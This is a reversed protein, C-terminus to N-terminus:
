PIESCNVPASPSCRFRMAWCTTPGVLEACRCYYLDPLIITVTIINNNMVLADKLMNCDLLYLHHHHYCHHKHRLVLKIIYKKFNTNGNSAIVVILRLIAVANHNKEGLLPKMELCVNLNWLIFTQYCCRGVPLADSYM